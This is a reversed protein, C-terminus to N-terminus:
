GRRSAAEAGTPEAETGAAALEELEGAIGSDVRYRTPTGPLVGLSALPRLVARAEANLADLEVAVENPYQLWDRGPGNGTAFRAQELFVQRACQQMRECLDSVDEPLHAIAQTWAAVFPKEAENQFANWKDSLRAKRAAGSAINALFVGQVPMTRLERLFNTCAVLLEAAVEARRAERKESRWRAENALLEAHFRKEAAEHKEREFALVDAARKAADDAQKAAFRQNVVLTILSVLNTVVLAVIAVVDSDM